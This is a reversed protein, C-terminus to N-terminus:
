AAVPSFARRMLLHALHSYFFGKGSIIEKLLPYVHQSICVAAPAGAPVEAPLVSASRGHGTVASMVRGPPRYADHAHLIVAHAVAAAMLCISSGACQRLVSARLVESM